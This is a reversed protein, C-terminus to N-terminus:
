ASFIKYSNWGNGIKSTAGWGNKNIPYFYLDGTGTRAIIGDSKGQFNRITTISNFGNWGSGVIARSENTFVGNGNTRYLVMKGAANKAVIDVTGNRDWDVTNISLDKWGSGIQSRANLTKGTTNPYLWLKGDSTSRALISPYKDTKKWKTLDIDYPGWGSTGLTTKTFGGVKGGIYAYLKGATDKAVIDVIGDSNWDTTTVQTMGQWGTGIKTRPSKLDKYNWLVGSSDITVLDSLSKISPNAVPTPTPTPTVTGAINGDFLRTTYTYNAVSAGTSTKAGSLTVTYASEGNGVAPVIGSVEFSITNPGYGNAIPYKSVAMAKGASNKVTVTANALNYNQSTSISWRGNPELQQPTYGANPWPIWTPQANKESTGGNFVVISNYGSTTGMGMTTTKPNLLWRRHGVFTNSSGYDTMYADVSEAATMGVSKGYLNSSGAGLGGAATYCKSTTPPYHTLINNAEMILAAAQAKSNQASDLSISDLGDLGRVFNIAATGKTLSDASQTGPKCGVVSGTWNVKSTTAPVWRAKYAASVAARSSTNIPNNTQAAQAPLTLATLSLVAISVIASSRVLVSLPKM